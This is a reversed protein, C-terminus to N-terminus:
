QNLPISFSFTAGIGDPNKQARIQGGHAEVISKAIFLGLGTGSFSRSAFRSFLRPLFDPQIGVGTDKIDVEVFM